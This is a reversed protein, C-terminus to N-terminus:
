DNAELNQIIIHNASGIKLRNLVIVLIDDKTSLRMKLSSKRVETNSSCVGLMALTNLTKTGEETLFM